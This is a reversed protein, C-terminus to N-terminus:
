AGFPLVLNMVGDWEEGGNVAVIGNGAGASMMVDEGFPADLYSLTVTVSNATSALVSAGAYFAVNVSPDNVEVASPVFAALDIAQDFGLTVSPGEPQYTASVLTLPEVPPPATFIHKRRAHRPPIAPQYVLKSM